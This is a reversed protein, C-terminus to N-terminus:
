LKGLGAAVCGPLERDPACSKWLKGCENRVHTSNVKTIVTTIHRRKGQLDGQIVLGLRGPLEKERRRPIGQLTVLQRPEAVRGIEALLDRLQQIGPKFLVGRSHKRAPQHLLAFMGGRSALRRLPQCRTLLSSGYAVRPAVARMAHGIIKERILRGRRGIEAATRSRRGLIRASLGSKLGNGALLASGDLCRRPTRHATVPLLCVVRAASGGAMGACGRTEGGCGGAAMGM